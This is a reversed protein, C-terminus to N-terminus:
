GQRRRMVEDLLVAILIIFGTVIQQWFASIAHLDLGMNIVGIILAGMASGIVSGSGGFLSTGGVVVAAIAFLEYGQGATPQGSVLKSMLLIAAIGALTGSLTFVKLRVKDVNIGSLRAAEASGGTAYVHRGFVTRSLLIHGLVVAGLAVLASIPFPGLYGMGLMTFKNQLINNRVEALPADPSITGVPSGDTLVSAIGRFAWMTALTVIFPQMRLYAIAAGNLFGVFAGGILGVACAVLMVTDGLPGVLAPAMLTMATITGVFGLVSGVSLDIGSTIIVFTMGVAIIMNISVQQALNQLTSVQRFSPTTIWLVVLIILFGLMVGPNVGFFSFRPRSAGTKPATQAPLTM